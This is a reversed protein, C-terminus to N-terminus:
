SSHAHNHAEIPSSTAHFEKTALLSGDGEVALVAVDHDRCVLGLTAQGGAVVATALADATVIDRAVVTAQTITSGSQRWIHAGRESTGSTAVATRGDRLAVAGLLQTRDDPDVIGAQWAGGGPRSGDVVVDGGVNLCWDHWGAGQLARAAQQMAWSKVIGTLDIGGRPGYPQFAGQTAQQWSLAVALVDRFEQCTDAIQLEGRNVLSAQSDTRHLSFLSETAEFLPQLVATPDGTGSDSCTLSLITGM